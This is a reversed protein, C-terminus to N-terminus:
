RVDWAVNSVLQCKDCKFDFIGYLPEDLSWEGKCNPCKRQGEMKRSKGNYKYLYYYVPKETVREIARCISLGLVTLRSDVKSLQNTAWREGVSSNMQLSDCSQYDSMWCIIDHYEGDATKPITYLPVVGFCALCRIPSELSIYTTFLVYAETENCSCVSASEPEDGILRIEPNAGYKRLEGLNKNAYDSNYRKALSTSEPVNLYVEIGRKTRCTPFERSVVQGNMRWAGLLSNITLWVADFDAGRKTEFNVKVVKM